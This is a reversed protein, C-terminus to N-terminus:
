FCEKIASLHMSSIPTCGITGWSFPIVRYDVEVLNAGIFGEQECQANAEALAEEFAASEQQGNAHMGCVSESATFLFSERAMASSTLLTLFILIKM